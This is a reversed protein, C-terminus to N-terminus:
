EIVEAPGGRGELLELPNSPQRAESQREATLEELVQIAGSIRLLTQQLYTQQTTVRQLEAQGTEFENKLGTLRSEIQQWPARENDNPLSPVADATHTPDPAM